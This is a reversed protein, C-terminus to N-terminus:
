KMEISDSKLTAMISKIFCFHLCSLPGTFGPMTIFLTALTSGEWRFLLLIFVAAALLVLSVGYGITYVLRVTAFYSRETQLASVCVLMREKAGVVQQREGSSRAEPRVESTDEDVSCAVHYPPSAGSWGSVTCNRSM